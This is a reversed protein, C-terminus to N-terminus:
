NGDNVVDEDNPEPCSLDQDAVGNQSHEDRKMLAPDAYALYGYRGFHEGRQRDDKHRDLMRLGHQARSVIEHHGTAITQEWLHRAQGSNGELSELVGLNFVAKAAAEPHGTAIAREYWHRAQGHDNLKREVIGLVVMAKPAAEPHGTAIVQKYWHRAQDFSGLEDELLGLGLLAKAAAEPHGTAIAREYWYRAQGFDGLGHEAFGLNAMAYPAAEPHGVAIIREFWHRAQDPHGLDYELRALHSMAESAPAPCGTAIAQKFWHRAQDPNGLERELTGLFDMAFAAAEPHGTAIVQEWWYRAQDLDGLESALTALNGMARPAVEPHGTATAQKFWHRAQDPNGLEREMLALNGMAKPAAEPHGTAIAQMFWHRAQDPNGLERELIGLRGMAKPAADPHGTAVAREYWQRSDAWESHEYFLTAVQYHADPEITADDHSLLRAAAHYAGCALATYGINRRQGGDFFRDAYSWMVDSVPWHADESGDDAIVALLPHPSYQQGGTVDQLDILRPRGDDPLSTAWRLADDLSTVSVPSAPVTGGLERRYGQYLYRAIELSLLRPIGARYWDTVARLLAVRDTDQESGGRRLAARLPEWSVMVRGMLLDRDEEVLPRLPAYADGALLARREQETITGLKIRVAYQDPLATLPEPIRLGDLQGSDLTALVLVGSPLSDLPYRALQMFRDATLSDLWVVAGAAEGAAGWWAAQDIMDALPVRPDDFFGAALHGPLCTRAAEALTRTAGVLRPGEVIVLRKEDGTLAAALLVDAERGIYPCDGEAGFRSAHVGLDRLSADGISVPKGGEGVLGPLLEPELPGGHGPSGDRTELWLNLGGASVALVITGALWPM